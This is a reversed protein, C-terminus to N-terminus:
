KRDETQKFAATKSLVEIKEKLGCKKKESQIRRRGRTETKEQNLSEVKQKSKVM